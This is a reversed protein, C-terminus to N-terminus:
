CKILKNLEETSVLGQYAKNDVILAPFKTINYQKKILNVSILELDASIPILMMKGGCKQKMDWLVQSQIKQETSQTRTTNQEYLYVLNHYDFGCKERLSESNIWFQFQYLAYKRKEQELFEKNFRNAYEVSEIKIGEKYIKDNYELNQEFAIDCYSENLNLFYQSLLIADRGDIDTTILSTRINNVRYIDLAMGLGVGLLFIITTIIFTKSYISMKNAM